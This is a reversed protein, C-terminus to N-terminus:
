RLGTKMLQVLKAVSKTVPPPTELQSIPEMPQQFLYFTHVPSMDTIIFQMTAIGDPPVAAGGYTISDEPEYTREADPFNASGTYSDAAAANQGFSLGDEYNSTRTEVERLEVRYSRWTKGTRNIAIKKMAFGATHFTQARNGFESSFGRIVLVPDGPGTVEETVTIPDEPTGTGTVSLLRFGGKEDSFSLGQDQLVEVGATATGGAFLGLAVLGLAVMLLAVSARTIRDQFM